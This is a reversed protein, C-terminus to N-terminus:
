QVDMSRFSQFTSSMVHSAQESQRRDARHACQRDAPVMPGKPCTDVSLKFSVFILSVLHVEEVFFM